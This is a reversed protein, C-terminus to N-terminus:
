KNIYGNLVELISMYLDEAESIELESIADKFRHIEETLTLQDEFGDWNEIITLVELVEMYDGLLAVNLFVPLRHSTDLGCQWCAALMQVRVPEFRPDMLHDIMVNLAEADKLDFLTLAIASAAEMDDTTALVTLLDPILTADGQAKVKAIAGAVKRGDGSNLQAILQERETQNLDPM